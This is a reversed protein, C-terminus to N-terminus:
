LVATTKVASVGDIDFLRRALPANICENRNNYQRTGNNIVVRGPLFKLTESNPTDETQIFMFQFAINYHNLNYCLLM